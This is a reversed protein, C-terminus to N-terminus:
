VSKSSVRAQCEKRVSKKLCEKKVGQSSVITPCEESSVRAASDQCSVRALCERQVSKSAVREQCEKGSAREQCEKKVSKSSVKAPLLIVQSSWKRRWVMTELGSADRPFHLNVASTCLDMFFCPDSADRFFVRAGRNSTVSSASQTQPPSMPPKVQSKDCFRLKQLLRAVAFGLTVARNLVQLVRGQFTVKLLEGWRCPWLSWIRFSLTSM